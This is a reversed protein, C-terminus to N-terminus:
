DRRVTSMRGAQAQAKLGLKLRAFVDVPLFGWAFRDPERRSIPRLDHGPWVFRNLEDTVIWSPAADLGLRRKVKDGLAVALPDRPDSHTIPAVYVLTDNDRDRTAVVIVAPRDKRGESAGLDAQDRWLYAYSIVLGPEPTPLAV